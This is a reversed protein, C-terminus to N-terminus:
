FDYLVLLSRVQSVRLFFIAPNFMNKSIVVRGRYDLLHLFFLCLVIRLTLSLGPEFDSFIDFSVLCFSLSVYILLPSSATVSM